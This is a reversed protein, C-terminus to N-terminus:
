FYKNQLEKSINSNYEVSNTNEANSQLSNRFQSSGKVSEMLMYSGILLVSLLFLLKLYLKM